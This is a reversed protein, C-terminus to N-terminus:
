GQFHAVFHGGPYPQLPTPVFTVDDLTLASTSIVEAAPGGNLRRLLEAFVFCAAILGVFPAGVTRSALRALGCKDLGEKKLQAYAPQNEYNADAQGVQVSWVAAPTRSAPFTHLIISRFAEPGAGLGAEVILEFNAGGLEARALANDVGCLAVGPETEARMTHKGFRREEIMCDFGRAELWAAVVRTKRRGVDTLFSLLSTSDNSPAIRDDDQVVLQVESPKEYPLVALCTAFAQGLNGVGLFWLKAPLYMVLTEGPDPTLWDHGPRWLSLGASRRGAMPQDGALFSFVESACVAGALIPALPNIDDEALRTTHSLPIVGGRWGAWTLQWAPGDTRVAAPTGIVVLPKGAGAYGVPMGQLETVAQILSRGPMLPSLCPVDRLGVVEVGGLLTRRATNILTLLATQHAASRLVEEGAAITLGFSALLKMAAAHSTVRGTDMFIKATRHLETHNIHSSM